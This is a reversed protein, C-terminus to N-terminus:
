ETRQVPGIIALFTHQLIQDGVGRGRRQYIVQAVFVLVDETEQTRGDCAEM